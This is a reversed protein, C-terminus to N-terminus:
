NKMKKTRKTSKTKVKKSRKNLTRHKIRGGRKQSILFRSPDNFMNYNEEHEVADLASIRRSTKPNENILYYFLNRAPQSSNIRDLEEENDLLTELEEMNRYPIYDPNHLFLYLYAYPLKKELDPRKEHILKRVQCYKEPLMTTNAIEFTLIIADIESLGFKELEFGLEKCVKNVKNIDFDLEGRIMKNTPNKPKTLYSYLRQSISREKHSPFLPKLNLPEYKEASVAEELKEVPEPIIYNKRYTIPKGTTRNTPITEIKEINAREAIARVPIAEDEM